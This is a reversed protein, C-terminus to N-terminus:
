YWCQLCDIFINKIYEVKIGDSCVTSSYILFMNLQLEIVLNGISINKIYEVKIGDNYVISLYVLFM